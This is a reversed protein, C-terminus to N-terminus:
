SWSITDSPEVDRVRGIGPSASCASPKLVSDSAIASRLRSIKESSCASTSSSSAARRASRV